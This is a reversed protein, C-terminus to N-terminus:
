VLRLVKDFLIEEPTRYGLVKKPRQNLRTQCTLVEKLSHDTLSKGKPFYERILGNTNENTGRQEPSYPDPWYITVGLDDRINALQLFETGHDPTISHVFEPPIRSFIALLATNISESDKRPAKTILTYRTKRDVATVLVAEGVKGQVTDLEWDGIRRRDNIFKPREHISLYDVKPERHKRDGPCHRQRGRHRLKRRIGTDGHSTFPQNLNHQDIHRYITNYSVSFKGELRLRNAIQQPSWQYENILTVIKTCLGPLQDLLRPKHSNHRKVLYDKQAKSPSYHGSLRKLERSVSSPSRRLRLAIGRISLGKASFELISERENITLHHYSM